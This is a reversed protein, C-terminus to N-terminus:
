SSESSRTSSRSSSSWRPRHWPWESASRPSRATSAPLAAFEKRHSHYWLGGVVAAIPATCTLASFVLLWICARRLGPLSAEVAARNHFESNSEPQAVQVDGRLLPMAHGRGPDGQQMAPLEERGQGSFSVPVELTGLKETPPVQPCGYVGCGKNYEWCDSHYPAHCGPCNM